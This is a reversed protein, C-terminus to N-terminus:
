YGMEVLRLVVRIGFSWILGIVIAAVAWAKGGEKTHKIQTLAVIGMTFGVLGALGLGFISVISFVFGIIAIKNHAQPIKRELEGLAPTGIKSMGNKDQADNNSEKNKNDCNYCLYDSSLYAAKIEKGCGKCGIIKEKDEASRRWEPIKELNACQECLGDEKIDIDFMTNNCKKCTKM